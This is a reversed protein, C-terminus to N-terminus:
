LGSEKFILQVTDWAKRARIAEPLHGITMQEAETPKRLTMHETVIVWEGCHLCLSLDHPKAREPSSINTALDINRTCYPCPTPPTRTM